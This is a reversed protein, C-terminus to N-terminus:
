PRLARCIMEASCAAPPTENRCSFLHAAMKGSMASLFVYECFADSLQPDIEGSDRGMALLRQEARQIRAVTCTLQERSKEHIEDRQTPSMSVALAIISAIPPHSEGGIADLFRQLAQRLSDAQAIACELHNLMRDLAYVIASSLIDEKSSFYEYLTGKGIGATTAIDQVKVGSFKRGDKILRFLGEFAAIEKPSYTKEAADTM